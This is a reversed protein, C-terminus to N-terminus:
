SANCSATLACWGAKGGDGCPDGEAQSQGGNIVTADRQGQCGCDKGIRWTDRVGDVMAYYVRDSPSLRAADASLPECVLISSNDPHPVLRGESGNPISL